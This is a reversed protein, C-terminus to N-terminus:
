YVTQNTPQEVTICKSSCVLSSASHATSPNSTAPQQVALANSTTTTTVTSRRRNLVDDGGGDTIGDDDEEDDDLDIFEDSDGVLARSLDDDMLYETGLAHSLQSGSQAAMATTTNGPSASASAEGDAKGKADSTQEHQGNKVYMSRFSENSKCKLNRDEKSSSARLKSGLRSSSKSVAKSPTTM